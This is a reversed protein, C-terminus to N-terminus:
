PTPDRLIRVKGKLRESVWVRNNADVLIAGANQTSEVIALGEQPGLIFAIDDLADSLFASDAWLTVSRSATAPYGTRPDIIHHYRKGDAVYYREYDGATSLGCDRLELTAFSTNAPGRPDQIAVSWPEGGPKSGAAYLDGGAQVMFDRLGERRLVDSARDVAYGKAIGGLGIRRGKPVRVEQTSRDIEIARYDVLRRRRKVEKPDPREKPQIGAGRFRWMEGMSAFTIDFAGSSIEGAWLSKEIVRFTDAGVKVRQGARVNLQSVDSDERWSSMAQDIRRLEDVAHTIAGRVGQEDLRETTYASFKVVTGMVRSDVDVRLPAKPSSPPTSALAAATNASAIQDVGARPSWFAISGATIASAGLIIAVGM